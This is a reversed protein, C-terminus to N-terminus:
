LETSMEDGVPKTYNKVPSGRHLSGMGTHENHNGHSQGSGQTLATPPLTYNGKSMSQGHDYGNTARNITSNDHYFMNNPNQNYNMKGDGM